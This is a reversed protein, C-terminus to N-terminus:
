DFVFRFAANFESYEIGVPGFGFDRAVSQSACRGIEVMLFFNARGLYDKESGCAMSFAFKDLSFLVKKMYPDLHANGM